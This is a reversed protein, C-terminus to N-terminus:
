GIDILWFLLFAGTLLVSHLNTNALLFLLMGLVINRERYRQYCAALLFLLLMSIGYNRAMVSYEFLMAKSFVLLGIFRWGFPSRLGLLLVAATAVMVSVVLLVGADGFVFDAARLM